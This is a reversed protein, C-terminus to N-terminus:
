TRVSLQGKWNLTTRLRSQSAPNVQRDVERRLTQQTQMGEGEQKHLQQTILQSSKKLMEMLMQIIAPSKMKGKSQPKIIPFPIHQNQYNKKLM